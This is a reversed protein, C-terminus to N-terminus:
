GTISHNCCFRGAAGFGTSDFDPANFLQKAWVAAQSGNSIGNSPRWSGGFQPARTHESMWGRNDTTGNDENSPYGDIVPLIDRGYTWMVGTTQALGFKSVFEWRITYTESGVTREPAGFAAVIFEDYTLLRKGFSRAVENFYYWKFDSYRISGNGGYQAPVLPQNQGTGPTGAEATAITLGFRSSPVASFTSGAYSTTSCFYLDVWFEGDICSMGRPDPCTPRWTLDWISYELIEAGAKSGGNVARPRGAPIYHYGGVISGGAAASPASTFNTSAVLAGTTPNQWIAYDTNNSHSPMSVATATNYYFGNLSSKAVISLKAAATKYFLPGRHLPPRSNSGKLSNTALWTSLWNTDISLTRNTTGTQNATANSGTATIGTGGSVQIAGNGPTVITNDNKLAITTNGTQNVTFTQNPSGPQTITITGNGPITNDNKLSITTNGTQNVKFTQNPSGPQTITITGNGITPTGSINGYKIQPLTIVSGSGQNATFSGSSNTSDGYNRITLAGNGPTVVTNDNKLNITTDGSQNVRFTQNATGPQTITILGNGPTTVTNDNKLNITTDGTQNVKFTQNPSGPQTITITGDGITPTGSVNAYKVQPLTVVSNSSQNATFTGTSNTNDGYNHITLAGDGPTVVTNDNKLNITTPGSQNVSFTQDPEGDQKVTILGDGVDPSSVSNEGAIKVIQDNSDKIFLSPDDVNYNVALEGYEMQAASPEKANGGDLVNSRKLQIKTM